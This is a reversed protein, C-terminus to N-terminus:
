ASFIKKNKVCFNKWSLFFFQIFAFFFVEYNMERRRKKKMLNICLWLALYTIIIIFVYLVHNFPRYFYLSWRMYLNPDENSIWVFSWLIDNYIIDSSITRQVSNGVSWNCFAMSIKINIHNKVFQSKEYAHNIIYLHDDISNFDTQFFSYQNIDINILAGYLQRLTIFKKNM